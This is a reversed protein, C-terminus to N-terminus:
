GMRGKGMWREIFIGGLLPLVMLLLLNIVIPVSALGNKMLRQNLPTEWQMDISMSNNQDYEPYEFRFSFPSGRDLVDFADSTPFYERKSDPTVLVTRKAVPKWNKDETRIKLTVPIEMNYPEQNRMELSFNYEGWYYYNDDEPEVHPTEVWLKPTSRIRPGELTANGDESPPYCVTDIGDGITYYYSYNKGADPEGFFGYQAAKFRVQGSKVDQTENRMEWGKDDLIHLTVNMLDGDPDWVTAVYEIPDNYRPSESCILSANVMEPPSNTVNLLLEGYYPHSNGSASSYWKNSGDSVLVRLRVDGVKELDSFSAFEPWIKATWNVKGKEAYDFPQVAQTYQNLKQYKTEGPLKAELDVFVTRRLDLPNPNQVYFGLNLPENRSVTQNGGYQLWVNPTQYSEPNGTSLLKVMYQYETPKDKQWSELYRVFNDLTLKSRSSSSSSDGGDGGDGGGGPGLVEGGHVPLALLLSLLLVLTVVLAKKM